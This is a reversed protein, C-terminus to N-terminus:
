SKGSPTKIDGNGLILGHLRQDHSGEPVSGESPSSLFQESLALGYLLTREELGLSAAKARHRDIFYDYFGKGHGLRRIAGTEPSIDFAVGPVLILDLVVRDSHHADPGALVRQREYVTSPDVSPIGWRDPQLSEYDQLDRLRVMDMVRGPLDPSPLPNRHLYPVFVEKGSALAHRVIAGTQIEGAPMSLFVSVRKADRYPRM